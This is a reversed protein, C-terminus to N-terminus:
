MIMEKVIIIMEESAMIMEQRGTIMIEIMGNLSVPLLSAAIMVAFM